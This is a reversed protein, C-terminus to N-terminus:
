SPPPPTSCTGPARSSRARSERPSSASKWRRRRTTARRWWARTGPSICAGSPGRPYPPTSTPPATSPISASSTIARSLTWARARGGGRHRHRGLARHGGHVGRLHRQLHRRAEEARRRVREQLGRSGGSRPHAGHRRPELNEQVRRRHLQCDGRSGRRVHGKQEQRFLWTSLTEKGVRDGQSAPNGSAASGAAKNASDTRAPAEGSLMSELYEVEKKSGVYFPTRAHVETPTQDLVRGRGTSAAGGCQEAIFAMPACETLLRLRGEPNADTAPQGCIGGHLMTRHFDRRAFRHVARQLAEREPGAARNSRTWTRACTGTGRTTTARTSPTFRAANPCRSENTRCSLSAWRPISRSGTFATASPSSSSPPPPICATDRPSLTPAPVARAPSASPPSPTRTM